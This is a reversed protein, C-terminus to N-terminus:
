VTVKLTREADKNIIYVARVTIHFLNAMARLDRAFSLDFLSPEISYNESGVGVLLKAAKDGIGDTFLQRLLESPHRTAISYTRKAIQRYGGDLTVVLITPQRSSRLASLSSIMKPTTDITQQRATSPYRSALEFLAIIQCIRAPGLGPITELQAFSVDSGYRSLVKLTRRAIRSVGIHSNGSGIVVQLLEQTTLSVAGTEQLKERPGKKIAIEM